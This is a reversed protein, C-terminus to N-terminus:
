SAVLPKVKSVTPCPSFRLNSVGSCTLADLSFTAAFNELGGQFNVGNCRNMSHLTESQLLRVIEGKECSLTESHSSFLILSPVDQGIDQPDLVGVAFCPDRRLGVRELLLQSELLGHPLA